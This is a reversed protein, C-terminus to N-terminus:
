SNMHNRIYGNAFTELQFFFFFGILQTYVENTELLAYIYHRVQDGGSWSSRRGM